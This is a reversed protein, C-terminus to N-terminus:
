SAATVHFAPSVTATVDSSIEQANRTGETEVSGFKITLWQSSM